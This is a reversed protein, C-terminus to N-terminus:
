AHGTCGCPFMPFHTADASQCWGMFSDVFCLADQMIQPICFALTAAKTNGLFCAATLAHGSGTLQATCSLCTCGFEVMCLVKFVSMSYLPRAGFLASHKGVQRTIRALFSFNLAGLRTALLLSPSTRGIPAMCSGIPKRSWWRATPSWWRRAM